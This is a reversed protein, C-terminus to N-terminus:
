TSMCCVYSIDYRGIYCVFRGISCWFEDIAGTATSVHTQILNLQEESINQGRQIQFQINTMLSQLETKFDNVTTIVGAISQVVQQNGHSIELALGDMASETMHTFHGIQETMEKRM